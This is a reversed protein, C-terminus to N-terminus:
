FGLQGMLDNLTDQISDIDTAVRNGQAELDAYQKEFAEQIVQAEYRKEILDQQKQVVTNRKVEAEEKDKEISERIEELEKKAQKLGDMMDMIQDIAHRDSNTISRIGMLTRLLQVFSKSDMLIDIFPNVRMVPQNRVMREKVKVSVKDIEQQKEDSEKQKEDILEQQDDIKAQLENVEANLTRVDGTLEEAASQYEKIKEGYESINSEIEGRKSEIAELKKQLDESTGGMYERYAQCAEYDSAPVHDSSLCKETWYETDTYDPEASTRIMNGSPICLVAAAIVAIWKNKKMVNM